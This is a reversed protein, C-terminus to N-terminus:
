PASIVVQALAITHAGDVAGPSAFLIREGAEMGDVATGAPLWRNVMADIALRTARRLAWHFPQGAPYSLRMDAVGFWGLGRSTLSRQPDDADPPAMDDLTFSVVHLVPPLGQKDIAVAAEALSSAPTWLAAPRWFLAHVRALPTLLAAIACLSQATELPDNAAGDVPTLAVVDMATVDPPAMGLVHPPPGSAMAANLASRAAAGCLIHASLGRLQARMGGRGHQAGGSVGSLAGDLGMRGIADRVTTAIDRGTAE